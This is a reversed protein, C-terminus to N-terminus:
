RVKQEFKLLKTGNTIIINYEGKKLGLNCNENQIKVETIDIPVALNIDEGKNFALVLVPFEIQIDNLSISVNENGNEFLWSPRGNTYDTNPHLVAIDTWVEGREYKLPNSNKDILIVSENSNISKLLPHNLEPMSRESYFTQNITLPNIGTFETLRGAM